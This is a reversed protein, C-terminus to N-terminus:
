RKNPLIIVFLNEDIEHENPPINQMKWIEELKSQISPYTPFRRKIKPQPIKTKETSSNGPKKKLSEKNRLGKDKPSKKRTPRLEIESEPNNAVGKDQSVRSTGPGTEKSPGVKVPMKPGKSIPPRETKSPLSKVKNEHKQDLLNSIKASQGRSEKSDGRENENIKIIKLGKKQFYGPVKDEEIIRNISGVNLQDSEIQIPFEDKIVGNQYIKLQKLFRGNARGRIYFIPSTKRSSGPIHSNSRNIRGKGNLSTVFSYLSYLM